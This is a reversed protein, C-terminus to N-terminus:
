KIKRCLAIKKEVVTEFDCRYVGTHLEALLSQVKGQGEDLGLVKLKKRLDAADEGKPEMEKTTIVFKASASGNAVTLYSFYAEDADQGIHEAVAKVARKIQMPTVQDLTIEAELGPQIQQLYSCGVARLDKPIVVKKRKIPYRFRIRCGIITVKKSLSDLVEKVHYGDICHQIANDKSKVKKPANKKM